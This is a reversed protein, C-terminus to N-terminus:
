WVISCGFPETHRITLRDGSILGEVADELDRSTITNGMRSDDVRGSYVINMGADFLFAHPTCVAGLARAMSAGEDKLYTFNFNREAARRTMEAPTDPPSLYPNNANIAILEIGRGKWKSRMAILREEYARATPCGNAIFVLVTGNTGALPAIKHLAANVGVPPM